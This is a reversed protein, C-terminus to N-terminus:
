NGSKHNDTTYSYSHANSDAALKNFPSTGHIAEFEAGSNHPSNGLSFIGAGGFLSSSSGMLNYSARKGRFDTQTALFDPLPHTAPKRVALVILQDVSVAQYQGAFVEGRKVLYTEAGDAVIAEVQGNQIEVYGLTQFIFTASAKSSSDMGKRAAALAFTGGREQPATPSNRNAEVSANESVESPALSAHSSHPTPSPAPSAPVSIAGNPSGSAALAAPDHRFATERVPGSSKDAPRVFASSPNAGAASAMATSTEVPNGQPQGNAPADVRAMVDPSSPVLRVSDGDAVITEVKGDSKEVYGLSNSDDQHTKVPPTVPAIEQTLGTKKRPPVAGGAPAEQHSVRALHPIAPKSATEHPTLAVAELPRQGQAEASKPIPIQLVTEDVAGVLEPTIKTVRYRDGIRDGVHVVQIENEQMIVAELKGDSKEVYGLPKFTTSDPQPSAPAQAVSAMQSELPKAISAVQTAKAVTEMKKPADPVLKATATEEVAPLTAFIKEQTVPPPVFGHPASIQPQPWSPLPILSAEEVVRPKQQAPSELVSASPVATRPLNAEPRVVAQKSRNNFAREPSLINRIPFLPRFRLLSYLCVGVSVGLLFTVLQRITKM